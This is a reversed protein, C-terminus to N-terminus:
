GKLTAISGVFTHKIVYQRGLTYKEHRLGVKQSSLTQGPDPDPDANTHSGTDPDPDANVYFARDPDANFGIRIRLMTVFFCDNKRPDREEQM